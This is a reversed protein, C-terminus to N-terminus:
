SRLPWTFAPRGACKFSSQRADAGACTDANAGADPGESADGTGRNGVGGGDGAPADENARRGHASSRGPQESRGPLPLHEPRETGPILDYPMERVFAYFLALPPVCFLPCAIVFAIVTIRAAYFLLRFARTRTRTEFTM